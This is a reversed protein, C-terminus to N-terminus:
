GAMDNGERYHSTLDDVPHFKLKKPSGRFSFLHSLYKASYLDLSLDNQMVVAVFFPIELRQLYPVKKTFDWVKRTSKVQVAIANKPVLVPASKDSRELDYLTCVLDVGVDDGPMTPSTIFAVKSLLYRALHENQWGLHTNKLSM